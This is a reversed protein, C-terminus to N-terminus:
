RCVVEGIIATGDPEIPQVEAVTYAKGAWVVTDNLAPMQGESAEAPAFVLALAEAAVLGLRQFTEPEGQVRIATGTITSTTPEGITDTAPDFAGKVSRSFTVAAGFTTLLSRSVSQLPATLPSTM